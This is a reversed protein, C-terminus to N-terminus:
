RCCDIKRRLAFEVRCIFGSVLFPVKELEEYSPAQNLDPWATRLEDELRKKAEPNRLLHYTGVMLATGIPDSGASFLILTDHSM